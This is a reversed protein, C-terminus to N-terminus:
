AFQKGNKIDIWHQGEDMSDEEGLTATVRRDYMLAVELLISFDVDPTRSYKAFMIIIIIIRMDLIDM